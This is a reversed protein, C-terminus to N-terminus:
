PSNRCCRVLSLYMCFQRSAALTRGRHQSQSDLPRLSSGLHLASRRLARPSTAVGVFCYICLIFLRSWAALVQQFPTRSGQNLQNAEAKLGQVQRKTAIRRESTWADFNYESHSRKPQWRSKRCDNALMGLKRMPLSHLYSNM